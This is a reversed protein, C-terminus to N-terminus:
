VPPKKTDSLDVTELEIPKLEIEDAQATKLFRDDASSSGAKEEPELKPPEPQTVSIGSRNRM